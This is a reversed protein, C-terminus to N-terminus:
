LYVKIQKEIDELTMDAVDNADISINIINYTNKCKQFITETAKKGADDNDMITIITMAGSGDLLIKQRDSLNSGFLAVANHIGAEELRWVNGPSEVLIVKSTKLIEKKSFWLNYLHDQSRFDKNHKWKSYKWAEQPQPCDMEVAHYGGCSSCKEFVSRGSCGIMYKGNIDYVPVVARNYMEKQENDCLGVDYKVLIDSSFGRDIFYQSPIKLSKQISNRAIKSCSTENSNTVINKIVSSFVKKETETKSIKINSLNDGLFNEIFDITEQFSVMKNTNNPWGYTNHSLVGRVFGIISGKFVEQCHHTRCKWNGRYSEGTHYLNFASANDGGHVPCPGMFMKGNQKLDPLELVDFLLEIKDCLSDCIVKLQNQNFSRSKVTTTM